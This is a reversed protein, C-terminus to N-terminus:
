WRVGQQYNYVDTLRGTEHFVKMKEKDTGKTTRIKRSGAIEIQASKLPMLNLEPWAEMLYKIEEYTSDTFWGLYRSDRSRTFKKKWWCFCTELSLRKIEYRHGLTEDALDFLYEALGNLTSATEHSMKEKTDLYKGHKTLLAENGTACCLGNRNSESGELDTLLFDQCDLSYGFPEIAIALAELYNWVSLRGFYKWSMAVKHLGQYRKVPDPEQLLSMFRNQQDTWAGLWSVYSEVCPIMKSKRYRCDTDVRFRDFESNYWDSFEAFKTEGRPPEPFQNLITYPGIVNYCAGWLFAAWVRSEFTHEKLSNMVVSVPHIVDKSDYNAEVWAMFGYLRDELTHRYDKEPDVPYIWDCSM